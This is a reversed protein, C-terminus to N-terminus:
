QSRLFGGEDTLLVPRQLGRSQKSTSSSYGAGPPPHAHHSCWSSCSPGRPWETTNGRCPITPQSM